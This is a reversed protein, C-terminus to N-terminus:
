RNPRHFCQSFIKVAGPLMSDVMTGCLKTSIYGPKKKLCPIEFVKSKCTVNQFSVKHYNIHKAEPGNETTPKNETLLLFM